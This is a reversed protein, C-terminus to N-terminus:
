SSITRSPLMAAEGLRQPINEGVVKSDAAEAVRMNEPKVVPSGHHCPLLAVHCKLPLEERDRGGGESGCGVREGEESQPSGARTEHRNHGPTDDRALAAEV